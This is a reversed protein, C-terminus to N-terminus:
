QQQKEAATATARRFKPRPSAQEAEKKKNASNFRRHPHGHRPPPHRDGAQEGHDQRRGGSRERRGSDVVFTDVQERRM